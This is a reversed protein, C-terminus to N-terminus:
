QIKLLMHDLSIDKPQSLLEDSFNSSSKKQMDRLLMQLKESNEDFRISSLPNEHTSPLVRVQQSLHIVSSSDEGAGLISSKNKYRNDLTM